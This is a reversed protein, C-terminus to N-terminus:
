RRRKRSLFEQKKEEVMQNFIVKQEDTLQEEIKSNTQTMLEKIGNIMGARDGSNEERIKQFTEKSDLLIEEIAKTQEETLNLKEKYEALREEVNAYQQASLNIFTFLVALVTIINRKNM